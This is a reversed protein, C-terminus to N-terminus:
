LKLSMILNAPKYCQLTFSGKMQSKMRTLEWIIQSILICSVAQSSSGFLLFLLSQTFSLLVSILAWSLTFFSQVTTLINPHALQLPPRYVCTESSEVEFFVLFVYNFLISLRLTSQMYYSHHPLKCVCMHACVHTRIHTICVEWHSSHNFSKSFRQELPGAVPGQALFCITMAHRSPKTLKGLKQGAKKYVGPHNSSHALSLCLLSFESVLVWPPSQNLLAQVGTPPNLWQWSRILM